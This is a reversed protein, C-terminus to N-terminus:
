PSPVDHQDLERHDKAETANATSCFFTISEISILSIYVNKQKTRFIEKIQAGERGLPPQSFVSMNLFIFNEKESRFYPNLIAM